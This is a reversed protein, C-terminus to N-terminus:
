MPYDSQQHLALYLLPAELILFALDVYGVYPYTNRWFLLFFSSGSLRAVLSLIATAKYRRPDLAGPIYFLSLLVLLMSAAAPWVPHELDPTQGTLALTANPWFMAPIAFTCNVFIGLWVARGFWVDFQIDKM